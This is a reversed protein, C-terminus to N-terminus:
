AITKPPPIVVDVSLNNILPTNFVSFLNQVIISPATQLKTFQQNFLHFELVKFVFSNVKKALDNKESFTDKQHLVVEAIYEYVSNIINVDEIKDTFIAPINQSFLSINMLQVVLLYLITNVTIHKIKELM